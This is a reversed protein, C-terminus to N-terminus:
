YIFKRLIMQDFTQIIKNLIMYKIMYFANTKLLTDSDHIDALHQIVVENIISDIDAKMIKLWLENSAQVFCNRYAYYLSHPRSFTPFQGIVYDGCGVPFRGCDM